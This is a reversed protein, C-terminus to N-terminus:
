ILQLCLLLESQFERVDWLLDILQPKQFNRFVDSENHESAADVLVFETRVTKWIVALLDAASFNQM